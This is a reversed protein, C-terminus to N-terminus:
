TARPPRSFRLCATLARQPRSRATAEHPWALYLTLCEQVSRAAWTQDARSRAFDQGYSPPNFFPRSSSQMDFMPLVDVALAVRVFGPGCM